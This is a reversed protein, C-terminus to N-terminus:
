ARLRGQNESSGMGTSETRGAHADLGKRRCGWPVLTHAAKRVVTVLPLQDIRQWRSPRLLPGAQAVIAENFLTLSTQVSVLSHVHGVVEDFALVDRMKPNQRPESCPTHSFNVQSLIAPQTSFDRQLHERRREDRAFIRKPAEALFRARDRCEVM